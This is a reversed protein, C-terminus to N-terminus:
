KSIEMPPTHPTGWIRKRSNLGGWVGHPESHRKAHEACTDRVPCAACIWECAFEVPTSEMDPTPYHMRPQDQEIARFFTRQHTVCLAHDRWDGHSRM